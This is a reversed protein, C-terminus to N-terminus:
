IDVVPALWCIYPGLLAETSKYPSQDIFPSHSLFRQAGEGALCRTSAVAKVRRGVVLKL